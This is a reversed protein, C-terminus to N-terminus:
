SAGAPRRTRSCTRRRGGRAHGHAAVFGRLLRAAEHFRSPASLDWVWGPLSELRRADEASLTGARYQACLREAYDGLPFDQDVARATLPVRTDDHTGM